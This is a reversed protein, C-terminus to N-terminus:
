GDRVQGEQVDLKAERVIGRVKALMTIEGLNLFKM